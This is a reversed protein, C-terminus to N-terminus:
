EGPEAYGVAIEAWGRDITVTSGSALTAVVSWRFTGSATDTDESTLDFQPLGDVISGEVRIKERYQDDVLEFWVQAGAIDVGVSNALVLPRGDSALYDDGATLTFRIDGQNGGNGSDGVQLTGTFENGNGGYMEGARVDSEQADTRNGLLESAQGYVTGVAVLTELPYGICAGGGPDLLGVLTDSPGYQYDLLVNTEPPLRVNGTLGPGYEVDLLVESESPLDVSGGGQAQSLKSVSGDVATTEGTDRNAFQALAPLVYDGVVSAPYVLVNAFSPFPLRPAEYLEATGGNTSTSTFSKITATIATGQPDSSNNHVFQIVMGDLLGDESTQPGFGLTINTPDQVSTVIWRTASKITAIASDTFGKVFVGAATDTHAQLSMMDNVYATASPTAQLDQQAAIDPQNGAMNGLVRILNSNTFGELVRSVETLSSLGFDKDDSYDVADLEVEIRVPVMNAAGFLEVWVVTKKTAIIEDPVHLEYGGGAGSDSAVFGGSVWTGPTATVLPIAEWAASGRVKYQAQLGASNFALGGLGAGTSSSSDQVAIQWIQSTLGGVQKLKM